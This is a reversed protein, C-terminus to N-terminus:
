SWVNKVEDLYMCTVIKGAPVKIDGPCSEIPVKLGKVEINKSEMLRRSGAKVTTDDSSIKIDFIRGVHASFKPNNKVIVDPRIVSTIAANTKDAFISRPVRVSASKGDDGVLALSLQIKPENHADAAPATANGKNVQVVDALQNAAFSPVKEVRFKYNVTELDISTKDEPIEALL